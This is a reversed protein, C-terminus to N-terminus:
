AEALGASAVYNTNNIKNNNNSHMNTQPRAPFAYIFLKEWGKQRGGVVAEVCCCCVVFGEKKMGTGELNEIRGEREREKEEL